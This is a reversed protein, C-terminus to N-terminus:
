VFGTRSTETPCPGTLFCTRAINLPIAPFTTQKGVSTAKTTEHLNHHLSTCHSTCNSPGGVATIIVVYPNWGKIRSTRRCLAWIQTMAPQQSSWVYWTFASHSLKPNSVALGDVRTLSVHEKHRRFAIFYSLNIYTIVKSCFSVKSTKRSHWYKPTNESSRFAVRLKQRNGQGDTRGDSCM